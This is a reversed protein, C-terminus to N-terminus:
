IHVDAAYGGVQSVRKMLSERSSKRAPADPRKAESTMTQFDGLSVAALHHSANLRPESRLSQLITDHSSLFVFVVMSSNFFSVSM